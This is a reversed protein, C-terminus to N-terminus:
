TRHGSTFCYRAATPQAADVTEAAPACCVSNTAKDLVDADGNVVYVEWPEDGPGTM